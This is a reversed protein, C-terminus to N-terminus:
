KLPIIFSSFAPGSPGEFSLGELRFEQAQFEIGAANWLAEYVDVCVRVSWMYTYICIYIYMCMYMYM